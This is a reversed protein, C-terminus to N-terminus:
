AVAASRSERSLLLSRISLWREALLSAGDV